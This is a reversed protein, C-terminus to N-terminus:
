NERWVIEISQCSQGQGLSSSCGSCGGSCVSRPKVIDILGKDSWIKLMPEIASAKVKFHIELAKLSTRKTERLYDRLSFLTLMM